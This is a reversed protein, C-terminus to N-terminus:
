LKLNKLFEFFPDTTVSDSMGGASEAIFEVSTELVQPQNSAGFATEFIVQRHNM